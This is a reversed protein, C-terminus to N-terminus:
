VRLNHSADWNCSPIRYVQGWRLLKNDWGVAGGNISGEQRVVCGRWQWLGQWHCAAADVDKWTVLLLMRRGLRAGEDHCQRWWRWRPTARHLVLLSSGEREGQTDGLLCVLFHLPKRRETDEALASFYFPAWDKGRKLCSLWSFAACAVHYMGVREGVINRNPWGFRNLVWDMVPWVQGSHIAWWFGVHLLKCVLPCRYRLLRLSLIPCKRGQWASCVAWTRCTWGM